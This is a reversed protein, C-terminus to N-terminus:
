FFPSWKVSNHTKTQFLYMIFLYIYVIYVYIYYTCIQICIYETRWNKENVCIFRMFAHSPQTTRRPRNLVWDFAEQRTLRITPVTLHITRIQLAACHEYLRVWNSNPPVSMYRNPRISLCQHRNEWLESTEIAYAESFSAM